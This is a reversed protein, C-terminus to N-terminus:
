NKKRKWHLGQTRTNIFWCFGLHQYTRKKRRKQRYWRESSISLFSSTMMMLKRIRQNVQRVESNSWKLFPGSYRALTVAWTNIEKILNISSLLIKLLKRIRRFYKKRIKEKMKEWKITDAKLIGLYKQNEKESLMRISVQNPLEIGEITERKGSKM